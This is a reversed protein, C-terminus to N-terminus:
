GGDVGNSEVGTAMVTAEGSWPLGILIREASDCIRAGINEVHFASTGAAAPGGTDLHRRGAEPRL